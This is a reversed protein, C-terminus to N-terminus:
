DDDHIQEMKTAAERLVVASRMDLDHLLALHPSSSRQLKTARRSSVHLTEGWPFGHSFILFCIPFVDKLHQVM